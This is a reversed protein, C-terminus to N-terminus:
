RGTFRPSRRQTFAALGEKFDATRSSLELATAEYEMADALGLSLGRHIARKTLGVAVTPGAALQDVVSATAPELEAAPVARHVLGWDAAEAGSVKRGLLLMEKARAVGALRPLLWTAGSDASFGRQVFPEWFCSDDTAITFDAALALQCGLGAAYGRVECVVPLQVETVLQVLRHAEVATRRQVAGTRPRPRDGRNTSVWDAGSCFDPGTSGLVVVRLDDDTAAARLVDILAGVAASDLANKRAPRDLDVRLVGGNRSVALGSM